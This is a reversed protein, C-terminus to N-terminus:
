FGMPQKVPPHNNILNRRQKKPIKLIMITITLTITLLTIADGAISNLVAFLESGHVQNTVSAGTPRFFFLLRQQFM